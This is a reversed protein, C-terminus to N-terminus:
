FSVDHGPTRIQKNNYYIINEFTTKANNILVKKENEVKLESLFFLM